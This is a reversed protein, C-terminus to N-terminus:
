IRFPPPSTSGFSFWGLRAVDLGHAFDLRDRTLAAVRVAPVLSCRPRVPRLTRTVPPHTRGGEEVTGPLSTTPSSALFTDSQPLPQVRTLETGSEACADAPPAFATEASARTGHAAALGALLVATLARFARM